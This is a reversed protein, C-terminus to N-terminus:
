RGRGRGKGQSPRWDLSSETLKAEIIALLEEFTKATVFAVRNFDRDNFSAKVLGEGAFLTISSTVRPKGDEYKEETLWEMITPYLVWDNGDRSAGSIGPAGEVTAPRKIGMEDYGKEQLGLWRLHLEAKHNIIGIIGANCLPCFRWDRCQRLNVM